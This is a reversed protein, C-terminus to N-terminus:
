QLSLSRFMVTTSFKNILIRNILHNTPYFTRFPPFVKFCEQTESYATSLNARSRSGFCGREALSKRASGSNLIRDSAGKRQAVFSCDPLFFVLFLIRPWNWQKQGRRWVINELNKLSGETNVVEFKKQQYWNISYLGAYLGGRTYGGGAYLGERYHHLM